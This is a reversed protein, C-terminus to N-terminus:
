RIATLVMASAQPIESDGEEMAREGDLTQFLESTGTGTCGGVTTDVSSLTDFRLKRVM